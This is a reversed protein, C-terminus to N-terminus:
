EDSELNELPISYYTSNQYIVLMREGMTYTYEPFPMTEYEVGDIEIVAYTRCFQSCDGYANIGVFEGFMIQNISLSEWAILKTVLDLEEIRQLLETSQELLMLDVEEQTYYISNNLEYALLIMREEFHRDTERCYDSGIPLENWYYGDGLAECKAIEDAYDNKGCGSLTLTLALILIISIIKKM